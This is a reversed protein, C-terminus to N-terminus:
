TTLLKKLLMMMKRYKNSNPLLIKWDLSRKKEQMRMKRGRLGEKEEWIPLVPHLRNANRGSKRNKKLIKEMRTVSRENRQSIILKCTRWNEM